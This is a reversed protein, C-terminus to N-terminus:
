RAGGRAPRLTQATARPIIGVVPAGVMEEAAEPDRVSNDMYELLYVLGIGLILALAAAYAVKLYRSRLDPKAAAQDIVNAVFGHAASLQNFTDTSLATDFQNLALAAAQEQVKVVSDQVVVAPDKANAADPHGREFAVRAAVADQYQKLFQAQDTKVADVFVSSTTDSNVLQYRVAALQAVTNAINTARSAIPDTVTVTYADSKGTAVKLRSNLQDVTENLGLKQIVQALLTNGTAVEPFSLTQGSAATGVSKATVTATAQYEPKSLFALTGATAVTVVLLLIPIWARRKFVRWYERLEM